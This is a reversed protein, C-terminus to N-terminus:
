SSTVLSGVSPLDESYGIFTRGASLLAAGLNPTTYPSTPPTDSTSGQDDGSFIHLYNPQSPHVLAYFDTLLAGNQALANMYPASPNGIISTPSHNGEIVIVIHDPTPPAALAAAGVAIGLSLVVTRTM